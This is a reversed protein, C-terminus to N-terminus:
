WPPRQQPPLRSQSKESFKATSDQKTMLGGYGTLGHESLDLGKFESEVSVRLGVSLQIIIWACWSLLVTIFSVSTIGLLQIFVQKLADLGGGLLLGKVPGTEYLIFSQNISVEPGTAFLALALTGWIGCVLHVSIVGVPDDIRLRDFFDVAFVVLIGAIAGILAAWSLDVFRCAATIAVLGGLVGNLIMSLDPKGFYFCATLMAALGGTAAALNTVLIIHTIILPSASMLAGTNFGFWGLWLLLCGLTALPFNHAPLAFSEGGQYKGLRPGILVAGVFAAWGGVSHIVTSGAFDWFGLQSLWGDGWIWHGPIPYILGTFIICFSLFAFFQIREAVAGAVIAIASGALVLQFFFKTQLPVSAWSLARFVGEYISGTNPSNDSGQLFFGNTGLLPSGNGFMLGFGIAWFVLSTLAFAILNKSLLNVVNKQRCFGAELLSFGIIMLFVLCSTFLVWVTDLSVQLTQQFQIVNNSNLSQALVSGTWVMVIAIALIFPTQWRPAFYRYSRRSYFRNVQKM